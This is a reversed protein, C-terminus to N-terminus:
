FQNYRNYKSIGANWETDYYGKGWLTYLQEFYAQYQMKVRDLGFNEQAWQRIAKRDLKDVNEMAWKMEGMTRCRYGNFGNKVTEAFVGWDTTIVPTGCLNAEIHVGEFPGIYQTPVFLAKARSMLEGRKEKGITGIYETGTRAPLEFEKAKITGNELVTAGQGAIILKSDTIGCIEAAIHVGKRVIMRGVFLFNDDHEESYPFDATDFYNPIVCDFAQGNEIGSLGYVHHMWAYSEFVRHKTFIGKYGVGFEVSTNKQFADVIPQQCNGGIVCIFDTPQVRKGIEKVTNDNFLKWYPLNSDWDIPFFDKRWDTHGFFQQQEADSIVPVFETCYQPDSGEGGYMYVTHGLSKMMKCFNLVKQTYACPLFDKNVKTHPLGIVHFTFKQM